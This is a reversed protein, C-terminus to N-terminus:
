AQEQRNIERGAALPVGVMPHGPNKRIGATRRQVAEAEERGEERPEHGGAWDVCEDRDAEDKLREGAHRHPVDRRPEGAGMADCNDRREPIPGRPVRYEDERIRKENGIRHLREPAERCEVQQQGIAM